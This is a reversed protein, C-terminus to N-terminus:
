TTLPPTDEGLGIHVHSCSMGLGVSSNELLYSLHEFMAKQNQRSIRCFYCLFRCCSAVMKPFAIQLSFYSADLVLIPRSTEPFDAKASDSTSTQCATFLKSFYM